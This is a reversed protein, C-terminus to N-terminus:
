PPIRITSNWTTIDAQPKEHQLSGNRLVAALVFGRFPFVDVGVVIPSSSVPPQLSSSSWIRPPRAEAAGGWSNLFVADTGKRSQSTGGPKLFVGVACAIVLSLRASKAQGVARGTMLLIVLSDSLM